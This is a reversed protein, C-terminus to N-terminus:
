AAEMTKRLKPLAMAELQRVRERSFDMERGIDALTKGELRGRMVTRLKAPLKAIAALLEARQGETVLQQEANAPEEVPQLAFDATRAQRKMAAQHLRWMRAHVWQTMWALFKGKGPRYTRIADLVAHRGLGMLDERTDYDSLRYTNARWRVLGEVTEFVLALARKDGAKAKALTEDTLDRVDHKVRKM